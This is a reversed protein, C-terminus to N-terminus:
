MRGAIAWAWINVWCLFLLTLTQFLMMGEFEWLQVLTLNTKGKLSNIRNLWATWLFSASTKHYKQHGYIRKTHFHSNDRTLEHSLVPTRNWSRGGVAIILSKADNWKVEPGKVLKTWFWLVLFPNHYFLVLYWHIWTFLMGYLSFHLFCYTFYQPWDHDVPFIYRQNTEGLNHNGASASEQPPSCQPSSM